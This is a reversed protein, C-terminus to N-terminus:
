KLCSVFQKVKTGTSANVGNVINYICTGCTEVFSYFSDAKKIFEWLGNVEPKFNDCDLEHFYICQKEYTFPNKYIKKIEMKMHPCEGYRIFMCYNWNDNLKGFTKIALSKFFKPAISSVTEGVIGQNKLHEDMAREYNTEIQEKTKECYQKKSDIKNFAEEVERLAEPIKLSVEPQKYTKYAEYATKFTSICPEIAEVYEKIKNYISEVKDNFSSIIGLIFYFINIPDTLYEKLKEFIEMAKEKLDFKTVNRRSHVKSSSRRHSKTQSKHLKSGFRTEATHSLNATITNLSIILILIFSLTKKDLKM